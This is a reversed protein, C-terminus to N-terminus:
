GPPKANELREIRARLKVVENEHETNVRRNAVWRAGVFVAVLGFIGMPGVLKAVEAAQTPAVFFAVMLAVILMAALTFSLTQGRRATRSKEIRDAEEMVLVGREVDERHKARREVMDMLQRATIGVKKYEAVIAPPLFPLQVTVQQTVQRM